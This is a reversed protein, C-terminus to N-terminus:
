APPLDKDKLFGAANIDLGPKGECRNRWTERNRLYPGSKADARTENSADDGLIDANAAKVPFRIPM